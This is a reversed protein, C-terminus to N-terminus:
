LSVSIPDSLTSACKKGLEILDKMVGLVVSWKGLSFLLLGLLTAGVYLSLATLWISFEM